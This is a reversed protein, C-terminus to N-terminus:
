VMTAREKDTRTDLTSREPLRMRRWMWCSETRQAGSSRNRDRVSGKTSTRAVCANGGRFQEVVTLVNFQLYVFDAKPRDVGVFVANADTFLLILSGAQGSGYWRSEKM